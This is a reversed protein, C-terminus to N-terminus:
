VTAFRVSFGPLAPFTLPEDSGREVISRWGGGPARAVAINLSVKIFEHNYSRAQTPAIEGEILEFNEDKSIIDADQTRLVEAVVFARSDLGEAARTGQGKM